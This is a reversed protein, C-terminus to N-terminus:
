FQNNKIWSPFRLRVFFFNSRPFIYRHSNPQIPNSHINQSCSQSNRKKLKSSQHPWNVQNYLTTKSSNILRRDSKKVARNIELNVSNWILCFDFRLAYTWFLNVM